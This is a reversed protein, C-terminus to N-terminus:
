QPLTLAIREAEALDEPTNINFFGYPPAPVPCVIAGLERQAESLRRLGRALVGDRLHDVCSLPWLACLNQTATGDHAVVPAGAKAAARLSAVLNLPLFPTDCPFTALWEVGPQAKAWELATVIGALPGPKDAITDTLIPLDTKVQADGRLNLALMDVQPRVRAIVAELLTGGAFPLLPKEGGMRSAEGGAIIVGAITM